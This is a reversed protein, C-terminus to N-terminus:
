KWHYYGETRVFLFSLKRGCPTRYFINWEVVGGTQKYFELKEIKQMVFCILYYVNKRNNVPNDNKLQAM